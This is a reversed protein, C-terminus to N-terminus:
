KEQTITPLIAKKKQKGLVNVMKAKVDGDLNQKGTWTTVQYTHM